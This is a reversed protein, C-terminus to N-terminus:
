PRASPAPKASPALKASPVSAASAASAAPPPSGAPPGAQGSTTMELPILATLMPGPNAGVKMTKLATLICMTADKDPVNSDAPMAATVKGTTDIKVKVALKGELDPKGELAKRYCENMAPTVEVLGKALQEPPLVGNVQPEAYPRVQPPGKGKVVVPGELVRAMDCTFVRVDNGKERLLRARDAPGGRRLAEGLEKTRPSKAEHDIWAEIQALRADDDQEALKPFTLSSCLHQVDSTYEGEAAVQQYAAVMPCPTIKLTAAASELQKARDAPKADALTSYLENGEPTALHARVYQTVKSTDKSVTFGSGKEGNCITEVDGKYTSGLLKWAVVGGVLVLGVLAWTRWAEVLGADGGPAAVPAAAPQARTKKKTPATPTPDAM